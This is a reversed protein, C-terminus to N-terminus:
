TLLTLQKAILVLLEYALNGKSQLPLKLESGTQNLVTLANEDSGFAGGEGVFNAAILNIKKNKLKALANEVLNETEAAFGVTFPPSSLATVHSLIDPTKILSLTMINQTKKIKQPAPFEPRYDSVAAAAIFVDCAKIGAMVADLMEQATTVRICGVGSPVPLSTPGSILHVNAGLAVAAEAIAYGMKGSSHNTVYRVPDFSEQTPGATIIIKKGKLIPDLFLTGMQRVIEAPELMRGPGIEGCAQEGEAPGLIAVGRKQLVLVNEQTVPNLWMECNMAPAVVLRSKTALCVTTLLDDAIGHAIKAMINATAPAILVAHAWRALSIHDIKAELHQNFLEEHVRNGSATQMTLPTIFEKASKTMIVRVFAGHFRLLRVIEPTKYAAIGGSIGLVINKEHLNKFLM